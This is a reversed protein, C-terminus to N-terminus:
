DHGKWARVGSGDKIMTLTLLALVMEDVKNRDYDM